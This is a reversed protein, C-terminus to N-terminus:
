PAYAAVFGAPIVDDPLDRQEVRAGKGFTSGNFYRGVVVALGDTTITVALGEDRGPGGAREVWTWRGEPDVRAVFADSQGASTLSLSSGDSSDFSAEEMFTGTVIASGDHLLAIGNPVDPGLGGARVAWLPSGAADYRTVFVDTDSQGGAGTVTVENPGDRGFVAQANFSGIVVFGGDARAAVGRAVGDDGALTGAREFWTVEGEADYRALFIYERGEPKPEVYKGSTFRGLSSGTVVAGGESVGAVGLMIDRESNGGGRQAWILGGECDFSAIFADGEGLQGELQLENSKGPALTLTPGMHGSVFVGGGPAIAIAEPREDSPGNAQEVWTLRGDSWYEAVFLGGAGDSSDLRIEGDESPLVAHPYYGSAVFFSGDAASAVRPPVRSTAGEIRQIWGLSGDAEYRALFIRAGDHTVELVQRTSASSEVIGDRGVTGAVLIGGSELAAVGSTLTGDHFSFITRVWLLSGSEPCGGPCSPTRPAQSRNTAGCQAPVRKAKQATTDLRPADRSPYCSFTLIAVVLAMM